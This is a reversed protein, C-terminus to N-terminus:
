APGAMPADLEVGLEERVRAEFAAETVNRFVMGNRRFGPAYVVGLDAAPFYAGVAGVGARRPVKLRYGFAGGDASGWSAAPSGDLADARMAVSEYRFGRRSPAVLIPLGGVEPRAGDLIVQMFAPLMRAAADQEVADILPERLRVSERQLENATHFRRLYDQYAGPTGIAAHVEGLRAGEDDVVYLEPTPALAAVMFATEPDRRCAAQLLRQVENQDFGQRVSRGLELLVQTGTSITGAFAVCLAPHLIVAKLVGQTYPEFSRPGSSSRREDVTVQTDSILRPGDGFTRGVVLTVTAM